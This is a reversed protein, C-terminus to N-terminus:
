RADLSNMKMVASSLVIKVSVVCYGCLDFLMRVTPM